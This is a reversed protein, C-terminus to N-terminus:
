RLWEWLWLQLPRMCQLHQMLSGCGQWRLGLPCLLCSATHVMLMSVCGGAGQWCQWGNRGRQRLLARAAAAAAALSSPIPRVLWSTM